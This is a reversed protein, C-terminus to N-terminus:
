SPEGDTPLEALPIDLLEAVKKQLDLMLGARKLKAELRDRERVLKRNERELEALRKADATQPKAKRGRKKPQLGAQGFEALQRRWKTLHASYLGERRLIAGIGGLEECADIEALIM